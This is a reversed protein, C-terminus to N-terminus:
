MMIKKPKLRLIYVMPAISSLLVTGLGVGYLIIVYDWSFEIKYMTVKDIEISYGSPGTGDLRDQNFFDRPIVLEYLLAGPITIGLDPDFEGPLESSTQDAPDMGMDLINQDPLPM